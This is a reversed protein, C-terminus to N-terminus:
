LPILTHFRGITGGVQLSKQLRPANGDADDVGVRVHVVDVAGAHAHVFVLFGDAACLLLPDGADPAAGVAIQEVPERAVAFDGLHHITIGSVHAAIESEVGVIRLFVVHFVDQFVLPIDPELRKRVIVPRGEAIPAILLQKFNRVRIRQRKQNM